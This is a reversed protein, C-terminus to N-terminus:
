RLPGAGQTNKERNMGVFLKGDREQELWDQGFNSWCFVARKKGDEMGNLLLKM